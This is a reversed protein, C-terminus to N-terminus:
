RNRILGELLPDRLSYAMGDAAAKATDPVPVVISDKDLPIDEQIAM